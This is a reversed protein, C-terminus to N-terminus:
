QFVLPAAAVGLVLYDPGLTREVTAREREAIEATTCICTISVKEDLKRQVVVGYLPKTDAM